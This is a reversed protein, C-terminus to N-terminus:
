GRLESLKKAMSAFFKINQSWSQTRQSTEVASANAFAAKASKATLQAKMTVQNV